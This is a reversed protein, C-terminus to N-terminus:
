PAQLHSVTPEEAPVAAGDRLGTQRVSVDKMAVAKIHTFDGMLGLKGQPLWYIARYGYYPPPRFPRGAWPVGTFRLDTGGPQALRVDSPSTYAAGLYAGLQLDFQGESSTNGRALIPGSMLALYVAGPFLEFPLRLGAGGEPLGLIAAALAVAALWPPFPRRAGPTSIM